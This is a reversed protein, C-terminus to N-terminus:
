KNDKGHNNQKIEEEITERKEKVMKEFAKLYCTPSCFHQGIGMRFWGKPPKLEEITDKHIIKDKKGCENCKFNQKVTSEIM